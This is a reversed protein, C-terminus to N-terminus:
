LQGVENALFSSGTVTSGTTILQLGSRLANERLDEPQQCLLSLNRLLCGWADLRTSEELGTKIQLDQLDLTFSPM